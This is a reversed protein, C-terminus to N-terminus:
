AKAEMAALAKIAEDMVRAREEPPAGADLTVRIKHGSPDSLTYTQKEIWKFLAFRNIAYGVAAVSYVAALTKLLDYASAFDTVNAGEM